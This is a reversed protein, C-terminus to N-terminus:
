LYSATTLFVALQERWSEEWGSGEGGMGKGERGKGGRGEGERGERRLRAPPERVQPEHVVRQAHHGRQAGDRARQGLQLERVLQQRM